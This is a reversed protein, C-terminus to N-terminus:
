TVFDSDAFGQKEYYDMRSSLILPDKLDTM